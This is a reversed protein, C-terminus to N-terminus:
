KANEASLLAGIQQRLRDLAEPEPLIKTSNRGGANPIPVLARCEACLRRAEAHGKAALRDLMELYSFEEVGDRVAALRISPSVPADTAEPCPPYIHYGDGNPYRTWFMEGPKGSQRIFSHWGFKWPDYTLWTCGWFEYKDAGYAWCYLPQMREIACYPTDLCQQGDTTFWIGRGEGALRKMVDVPFCGYAGVGWVDLAKDWDACYRWTSSYIRVAPDVEHIMRCLAIMQDRIQPERFYPEDSIYFVLRDAWGKERVHNWYLRFADQFVKKYEARLELRNADAYPYKGAYPEEGMFKKPPHGWGFGYFQGPMYANPFQYVDFFEHAAQDYKTFDANVSGDKARTFVPSVGISDPCIKYEAMLDLVRKKAAATDAEGPLRWLSDKGRYGSLRIDYTAAFTPRAPLAFNWVTVAIEDRRLVAGNARWVLAGRYAGPRTAATTKVSVHVARASHAPLALRASKVLPDPWWGTFGDCGPGHNPERLVEESTHQSYYASPYDVPVLGVTYTTAALKEGAANVFPELALDLNQARGAKVALQLNETENQALALAFPGKADVVPSEPMVKVTPSTPQVRFDNAALPAPEVEGLRVASAGEAIFAGDHWVTGTGNMTLHLELFAIDAAPEATGFVPTWDWTGGSVGAPTRVKGAAADFRTKGNKDILHLHISCPHSTDQTKLFGGFVYKRGPKVAIRQRRGKWLGADADAATVIRGCVKDFLGEPALDCTVGKPLKGVPWAKEGAAFTGNTILNVGSALLQAFDRCIEDSLRTRERYVQDSPIESGLVSADASQRRQEGGQDKVYLYYTLAGHAPVEAFFFGRDGITACPVPKGAFVLRSVPKRAGRLAERAAFSALVRTLPRDSLNVIRVPVRWAWDGEATYWAAGDGEEKLELREKEGVVIEAEVAVAKKPWFDALAWAHPNDAYLHFVAAGGKKATVPFVFEGPAPVAYELETGGEGVLRFAEPRASKLSPISVAVSEAQWDRDSRNVIAVPVRERWWGGRNLWLDLNWGTTCAALLVSLM